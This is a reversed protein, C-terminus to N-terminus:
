VPEPLQGFHRHEAPRQKHDPVSRRQHQDAPEIADFGEQSFGLTRYAGGPFASTLLWLQARVLSIRLMNQCGGRGNSGQVRAELPIRLASDLM